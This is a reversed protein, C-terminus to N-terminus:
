TGSGFLNGNRNSSSDTETTTNQVVGTDQNHIVKPETSLGSCGSVLLLACGALTVRLLITM